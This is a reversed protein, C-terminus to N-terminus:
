RLKRVLLMGTMSILGLLGILPLPSATKPLVKPAPPAQEAPAPAPAAPAAPAEVPAPAAAREVKAPESRPELKPASLKAMVPKPERPATGTVVTNAAIDVKPSEVIKQASVVMGKRLEFVTADKGDITFKYDKTVKYQRNEGNPLTLIVNNGAVFWVKGTGVTTTRETVPTTTTTVTGRLKTGPRLEQLTLEKGDIIFRRSEPPTFTRIEGDDTKAVFTNGDVMVVTGSLTQTTTTAAGKIRETKTQPM